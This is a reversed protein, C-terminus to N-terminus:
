LLTPLPWVIQLAQPGKQTGKRELPLTKLGTPDVAQFASFATPQKLDSYKVSHVNNLQEWCSYMCGGALELNVTGSFEM